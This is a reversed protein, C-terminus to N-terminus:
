RITPAIEVDCVDTIETSRIEKCDKRAQSAAVNNARSNMKATDKVSKECDKDGDCAAKENEGQTKIAQETCSQSASVELICAKEYNKATKKCLKADGTNPFVTFWEDALNSPIDAPIGCELVQAHARPSFMLVAAAAVAILTITCRTTKM